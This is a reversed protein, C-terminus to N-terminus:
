RKDFQIRMSLQSSFTVLSSFNVCVREAYNLIEKFFQRESEEINPPYDDVSSIQDLHRRLKQELAREDAGVIRDLIKGNKMFLFTPMAQIAFTQVTGSISYIRISNSHDFVSWSM